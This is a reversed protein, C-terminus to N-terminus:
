VMQEFFFKKLLLVFLHQNLRFYLLLYKFVCVGVCVFYSILICLVNYAFIIKIFYIFLRDYYILVFNFLFNNYHFHFDLYSQFLIILCVFVVFFIVLFYSLIFLENVHSTSYRTAKVLVFYSIMVTLQLITSIIFFDPCNLM